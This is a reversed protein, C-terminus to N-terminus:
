PTNGANNNPANRRTNLTKNDWVIQKCTMGFEVLAAKGTAELPLKLSMISCEILRITTKELEPDTGTITVPFFISGIGNDPFNKMMRKHEAHVQTVKCEDVKYIGRTRSSQEQMGLHTLWEIGDLKDGFEIKQFAYELRGFHAIYNVGSFAINRATFAM